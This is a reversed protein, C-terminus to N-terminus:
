SLHFNFTTTYAISSAPDGNNFNKAWAVCKITIYTNRTIMLNNFGVMVAPVVTNGDKYFNVPFGEKPSIYFPGETLNNPGTYPTNGIKAKDDPTAGDCTVAVHDGSWLGNQLKTKTVTDEKGFVEPVIGKPMMLKLLVCPRGQNYGYDKGHTCLSGFKHIDFRCKKGDPATANTCDVYEEGTQPIASYDHTFYDLRNLYQLYTDPKTADFCIASGSNKIMPEVLLGFDKANPSTGSNCMHKEEQTAKHAVAAHIGIGITIVLLLLIVGFVILLTSFKRRVKFCGFNISDDHFPKRSIVSVPYVGTGFDEMDADSHLYVNEPYAVRDYKSEM